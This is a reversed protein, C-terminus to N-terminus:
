GGKRRPVQKALKIWQKQARRYYGPSRRARTLIERSLERARQSDGTRDLLLAYRCRVEEGSSSKLMAAYRELAEKKEGAEELTRALLLQRSEQRFDPKIAELREITEKAEAFRQSLYYAYALELLVVPDDKFVGTLCSQYLDIAEAHRGATMYGRALAQRNKVTDCVDLEDQLQRLSRGPDVIAILDAGMRKMTSGASLDPLVEAVFYAAAGIGPMLLIIWLWYYARGTKVVHIVCVLQLVLLLIGLYEM